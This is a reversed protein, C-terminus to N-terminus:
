YKSSQAIEILQDANCFLTVTININVNVHASGLTLSRFEKNSDNANSEACSFNSM